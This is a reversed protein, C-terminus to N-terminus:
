GHLLIEREKLIQDTTMSWIEGIYKFRENNEEQLELVKNIRRKLEENELILENDINQLM